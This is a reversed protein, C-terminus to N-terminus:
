GKSEINLFRMLFFYVRCFNLGLKTLYINQNKEKILKQSKLDSIRSLIIKKKKLYALLEYFTAEKKVLKYILATPSEQSKLSVTFFISLFSFIYLGIISNIFAFEINKFDWFLFLLLLVLCTFYIFKKFYNFFIIKKKYFFFYMKNYLLVLLVASFTFFLDKIM